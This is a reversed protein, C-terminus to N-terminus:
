ESPSDKENRIWRKFQKMREIFVPMKEIIFLLSVVASLIYMWQEVPIGFLTLASSGTAVVIKASDPVHQLSEQINM